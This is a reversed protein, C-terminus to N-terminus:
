GKGEEYPWSSGIKLSGGLRCRDPVRRSGEEEIPM